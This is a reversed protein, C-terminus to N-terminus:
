IEISQKWSDRCMDDYSYKPSWKLYNLIKSTSAFCIPIDGPRREGFSFKVNVQNTKEFINILELVSIGKGLGVNFIEYKLENLKDLCKLHVEALDMVHIYDRLCTGDITPYDNGFITMKKGKVAEIINPMLNLPKGKPRDGLSGDPHAGIPNFYRLCVASLNSYNKCCNKIIEEIMIKTHGYPSLYDTQLDEELPSEHKNGYITASSSFLLKNIGFDNMAKLLEITSIVNNSYYNLPSLISENVSKSSAMHIVSDVSYKEFIISLNKYNLKDIFVKINPLKKKYDLESNSQDDIIIVEKDAIKAIHSGIYGLGGTILITM